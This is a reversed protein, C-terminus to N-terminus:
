AGEENKGSPWPIFMPTRKKYEIYEDGFDRLLRREEYPIAMKVILFLFLVVVIVCGLSNLYIAISLYMSNAGFVMPNRSYRFPGETVLKKTRPSIAMEGIDVPGGKGKWLLFINSWAAFIAGVAFVPLAVITSIYQFPLIQTRFVLIDVTSLYWILYPIIVLFIGLGIVYGLVFRFIRDRHGDIETM